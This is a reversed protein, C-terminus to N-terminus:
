VGSREAQQKALIKRAATEFAQQELYRDIYMEAVSTYISIYEPNTMQYPTSIIHTGDQTNLCLQMTQDYKWTYHIGKYKGVKHDMVHVPNMIEPITTGLAEALRYLTDASRFNIDKKGNALEYVTTYPIGSRRSLRYMTLGSANLKQIFNENM